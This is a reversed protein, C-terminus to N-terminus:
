GRASWEDLFAAEDLRELDSRAQALLFGPDGLDAPTRHVVAGSSRRRIVLDVLPAAYADGGVVAELLHLARRALRALRRGQRPELTADLDDAASM